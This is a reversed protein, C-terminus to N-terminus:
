AGCAYNMRRLGYNMKKSHITRVSMFHEAFM